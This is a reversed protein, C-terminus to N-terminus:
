FGFRVCLDERCQLWWEEQLGGQGGLSLQTCLLPQFPVTSGGMISCVPFILKAIETDLYRPVKAPSKSRPGLARLVREREFWAESMSPFGPM